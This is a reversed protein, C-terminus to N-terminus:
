REREEEEEEEERRRRRVKIYYLHGKAIEVINSHKLRPTVQEVDYFDLM